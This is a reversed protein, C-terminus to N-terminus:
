PTNSNLVNSYKDQDENDFADFKYEHFSNFNQQQLADEELDM